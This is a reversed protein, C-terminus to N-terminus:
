FLRIKLSVATIVAPIPRNKLSSFSIEIEAYPSHSTFNTLGNNVYFSPTTVKLKRCKEYASTGAQNLSFLVHLTRIVYCHANAYDSNCHFPLLAKEQTNKLLM